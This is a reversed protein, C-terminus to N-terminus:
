ASPTFSLLWPPTGARAARTPHSLYARKARWGQIMGGVADEGQLLSLVSVPLSPTITQHGHKEIEPVLLKWCLPNQTSGNVLCFISM